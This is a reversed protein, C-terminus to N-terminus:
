VEVDGVEVARDVPVRAQEPTPGRGGVVLPLVGVTGEEDQLPLREEDEGPIGLAAALDAARDPELQGGVVNVALDGAEVALSDAAPAHRLRAEPRLDVVEGVRVAVEDPDARRPGDM